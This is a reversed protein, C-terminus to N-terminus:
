RSRFFRPANLALIAAALVALIPGSIMPPPPPVDPQVGAVVYLVAVGAAWVPIAWMTWWAWREGRRFPVLLIVMLLGGLLVLSWGNTRTMFDFLYLGIASEARLEDLTLGSLGLPIAPDAEVGASVDLVGFLLLMAAIAVLGWWSNRQLWPMLPMTALPHSPPM